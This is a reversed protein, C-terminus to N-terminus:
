RNRIRHLNEAREKIQDITLMFSSINIGLSVTGDSDEFQELMGSFNLLRGYYVVLTSSGQKYLEWHWHSNRLNGAVQYM